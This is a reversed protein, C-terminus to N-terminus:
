KYKMNIQNYKMNNKYPKFKKNYNKNIKIM